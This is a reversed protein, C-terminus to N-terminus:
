TLGDKEDKRENKRPIRGLFVTKADIDKISKDLKVALIAQVIYNSALQM